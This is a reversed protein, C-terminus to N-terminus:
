PSGGIGIIDILVALGAGVVSAIAGVIKNERRAGRQEDEVIVVRDSLAKHAAEGPMRKQEMELITLRTEFQSYRQEHLTDQHGLAATLNDIQGAMKTILDHDAERKTKCDACTARTEDLAKALHEVQLGTLQAFVQYPNQGVENNTAPAM